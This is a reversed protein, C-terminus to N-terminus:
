WRKLMSFLIYGVVLAVASAVITSLVRLTKLTGASFRAAVQQQHTALLAIRGLAGRATEDGPTERLM